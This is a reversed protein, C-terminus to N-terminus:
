ALVDAVLVMKYDDHHLMGCLGEDDGCAERLFYPLSVLLM